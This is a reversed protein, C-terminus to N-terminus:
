MYELWYGLYRNCIWAWYQLVSVTWALALCNKNADSVFEFAYMIAANCTCTCLIIYQTAHLHRGFLNASPPCERWRRPLAPPLRFCQDTIVRRVDTIFESILGSISYETHEWTQNTRKFSIFLSFVTCNYMYLHVHAITNICTCNYTNHISRKNCVFYRTWIPHFLKMQAFRM